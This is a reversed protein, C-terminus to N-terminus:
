GRRFAPRSIRALFPGLPQYEWAQIDRASWDNVLCLGFIPARGRQDPDARRPCEGSRRLIGVELEYDLRQTPVTSCRSWRSPARSPRLPRRVPTGSVVISSARGHYGIPLTSTTRCCRITPGSCTAWTRPTIFPPTSIPTTASRPRCSFSPTPWRCCTGAARKRTEKAQAM